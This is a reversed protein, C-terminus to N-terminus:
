KNVGKTIQAFIAVSAGVALAASFFNLFTDTDIVVNLGEPLLHDSVVRNARRRDRRTTTRPEGALGRTVVSEQRHRDDCLSGRRDPRAPHVRRDNRPIDARGAPVPHLRERQM